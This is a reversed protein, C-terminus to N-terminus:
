AGKLTGPILLRFNENLEMGNAALINVQVCIIIDNTTELLDAPIRFGIPSNRFYFTNPLKIADSYAGCREYQSVAYRWTVEKLDINSVLQLNLRGGDKVEGSLSSMPAVPVYYRHGSKEVFGFLGLNEAALKNPELVEKVPISAVSGGDLSLDLRYNRNMSFNVGRVSISTFDDLPQTAITLKENSNLAYSIVGQTLSVVQITFGSVNSNYFGECRGDRKRYGYISNEPELDDCQAKIGTCFSLFIVFTGLIRSLMTKSKTKCFNFFLIHIELYFAMGVSRKFFIAHKAFYIVISHADDMPMLLRLSM